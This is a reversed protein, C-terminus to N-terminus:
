SGRFGDTAERELPHKGDTVPSLSENGNRRHRMVLEWYGVYWETRYVGLSRGLVKVSDGVKRGLTKWYSGM